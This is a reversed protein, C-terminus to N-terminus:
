PDSDLDLGAPPACRTRRDEVSLIPREAGVEGSGRRPVGLEAYGRPRQWFELVARVKAVEVALPLAVGAGAAGGAVEGGATHHTATRLGVRARETAPQVVLTVADWICQQM